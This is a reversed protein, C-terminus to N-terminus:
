NRKTYNSKMLFSRDYIRIYFRKRWVIATLSTLQQRNLINMDHLPEVHSSILEISIYILLLTELPRKQFQIFMLRSNSM